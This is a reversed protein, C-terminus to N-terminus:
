QAVTLLRQKRQSTTGVIQQLRPISISEEEAVFAMFNKHTTKVEAIRVTLRLMRETPTENPPNNATFKPFEDPLTVGEYELWARFDGLEVRATEACNDEATCKLGGNNIDLLSEAFRLKEEFNTPPRCKAIGSKWGRIESPEIRCSIAVIEWLQANACEKWAEWNPEQPTPNMRTMLRRRPNDETM